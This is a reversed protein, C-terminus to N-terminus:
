ILKKIHQPLKFRLKWLLGTSSALKKEMSDYHLNWKLHEYMHMGLYKINEVRKLTFTNDIIIENPDSLKMQYSHFIIFNTKDINLYMKQKELFEMILMMDHNITDRINENREHSNILLADDAFLFLKGKLPLKTIFNFFIIFLLSGLVGGQVVGRTFSNAKSLTSNIRVVQSRNSLYSTLVKLMQGKIGSLNLSHILCETDVLDFAKKIDMCVASVKKKNDIENRIQEVVELVASETGCM